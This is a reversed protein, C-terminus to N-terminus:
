GRYGKYGPESEGKPERGYRTGTGTSSLLAFTPAAASSNYVDVPRLGRCLVTFVRGDSVPIKCTIFVNAWM